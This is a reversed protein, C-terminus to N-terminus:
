GLLGPNLQWVSFNLFAAFCVWFFYPILLYAALRSHRWFHVMTLLILGMLLVIDVFAAVGLHWSFFLWSWLANIVLQIVFLGLALRAASFVRRRWVLWASIAMMSYLLTWVPGFLWGPPAWAPQTLEAYFTRAQVSAISGAAATLYSLAFCGIFGLFQKPKSFVSMALHFM